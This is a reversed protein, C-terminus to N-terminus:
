IFGRRNNMRMAKFFLITAAIIGLIGFALGLACLVNEMTEPIPSPAKSVWIKEMKGEPIGWHEVQCVYIDGQEAVFPLYSFKRFTNDVSPYFDTEEVGKSVVENNKLWTVNLVPPSFRDVFCILVNPDGLEVANEPYVTASPAVNLARTRNSRKMLVEMNNKMVAINALAGQVEFSTFRQFDPLRWVNQKKEWDVHLIEENDFELLFERVEEGFPLEGPLLGAGGPHGGSEPSRGGKAPRPPPDGLPLLPSKRRRRRRKRRQAGDRCSKGVCLLPSM